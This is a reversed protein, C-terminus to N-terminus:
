DPESEYGLVVGAAVGVVAVILRLHPPVLFSVVLGVAGWAGANEKKKNISLPASKYGNKERARSTSSAGKSRNCSICAPYLNNLHDTGGKVRPMSHEVEWAGRGGQKGYNSFSLQKRCLHCRGDTKQFIRERFNNDTSM